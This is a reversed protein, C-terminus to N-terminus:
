PRGPEKAKLLEDRMQTVAQLQEGQPNEVIYTNLQELVNDYRRLKIYVNALMLRISARKAIELGADAPHLCTERNGQPNRRMLRRHKRDGTESQDM